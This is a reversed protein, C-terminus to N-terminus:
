GASAKGVYRSRLHGGERIRYYLYPGTVKGGKRPIWKIELWGNGLRIATTPAEQSALQRDSLDEDLKRERADLLARLGAIHERGFAARQIQDAIVRYVSEAQEYREVAARDRQQRETTATAVLADATEPTLDDAPQAGDLVLLNLLRLAEERDGQAIAERASAAISSGGLQAHSSGSPNPAAMERQYPATYRV